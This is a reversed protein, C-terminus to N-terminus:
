QCPDLAKMMAKRIVPDGSAGIEQLKIYSPMSVIPKIRELEAKTFESQSAGGTQGFLINDDTWRTGLATGFFGDLLALDATPVTRVIISQYAASLAHDSIKNVCAAMAPHEKGLGYKMGAVTLRSFEDATAHKSSAAFATASLSATLTAAICLTKLM